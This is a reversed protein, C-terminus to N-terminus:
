RSVNSELIELKKLGDRVKRSDINLEKQTLIELLENNRILLRVVQSRQEPTMGGM